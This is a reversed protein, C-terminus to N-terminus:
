KKKVPAPKKVPKKKTAPKKKNVLKSLTERGETEPTYELGLHERIQDIQEQLSYKTYSDPEIHMIRRLLGFNFDYEEAPKNPRGTTREELRAIDARNDSIEKRVGGLQSKLSQSLKDVRDKVSQRVAAIDAPGVKLPKNKWFM